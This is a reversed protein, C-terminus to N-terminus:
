AGKLRKSCLSYYGGGKQIWKMGGNAGSGKNAKYQDLCTEMRAKGPKDSAYKTNVANPFTANGVAATPAGPTAPATTTPAVTAPTSAAAPAPSTTPTPATAGASSGTDTAAVPTASCEATRFAKWKEGNLTGAAKAAQYKASCEKSSLAHAPGAGVCAISLGLGAAAWATKLDLISM